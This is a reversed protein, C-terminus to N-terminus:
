GGGPSPPRHALALRYARLHAKASREVSFDAIARERAQAGLAESQAPDELIRRIAAALARPDAAPVLAGDAGDDVIESTGGVRTCVVPLGAAMAEMVVTPTGESHSALVFVDMACLLEDVDSREGVFHVSTTARAMDLRRRITEVYNRHTDHEAGILLLHTTPHAAHLEIFAEVLDTIGKEPNLNAVCGIVRADAPLGLSRRVEERREPRPRFRTVDVPPLYTVLRRIGSAALARVFLMAATAVLRPTGVDVLQWVVPRRVIWAAVAAHPNVMGGIQVVDIRERRIISCLRLVEIPFGFVLALHPFPSLTARLRHLRMRRVQIGAASLREAVATADHPLVAVTEVGEQGLAAALRLVQNHPGGFVPYHIVALVRV